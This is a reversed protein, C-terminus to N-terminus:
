WKGKHRVSPNCEVFIKGWAYYAEEGDSCVWCRQFGADFVARQELDTLRAGPSANKFEVSQDYPDYSLHSFHFSKICSMFENQEAYFAFAREAFLEGFGYRVTVPFGSRRDQTSTM